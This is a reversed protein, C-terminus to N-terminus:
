GSGQGTKSLEGQFACRQKTQTGAGAGGRFPLFAMAVTRRTTLNIEKGRGWDEKMTNKGTGLM